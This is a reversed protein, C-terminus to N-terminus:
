DVPEYTAAQVDCAIPYYGSGDSELAIWDGLVITCLSSGKAVHFRLATAVSTARLDLPEMFPWTDQQVRAWAEIEDRNDGRWQIMETRSPRRQFVAM